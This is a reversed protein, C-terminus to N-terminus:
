CEEAEKVELFDGSVWGTIKGCRIHFWGSKKGVVDVETGIQITELVRGDPQTRVNLRKALVVGKVPLKKTKAM